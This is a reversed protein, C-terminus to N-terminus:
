DTLQHQEITFAPTCSIYLEMNGEWYFKEGAEILVLDGSNLVHEHDNIVVKGNGSHIYVMEKCQMNIARNKDPYRGSLKIIAFNIENDALPFEMVQCYKNNNRSITQKRYIIKM